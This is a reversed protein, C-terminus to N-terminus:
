AGITLPEDEWPQPESVWSFSHSYPTLSPLHEVFAPDTVTLEITWTDWPNERLKAILEDDSLADFDVPEADKTKEVKTDVIIGKAFKAYIEGDFTIGHEEAKAHLLTGLKSTANAFVDFSECEPAAILSLAEAEHGIKLERGPDFTYVTLSVTAGDVEGGVVAPYATRALASLTLPDALRKKSTDFRAAGIKGSGPYFGTSGRSGRSISVVMNDATLVGVGDGYHSYWVVEGVLSELVEDTIAADEYLDDTVYAKDSYKPFWVFEDEFAGLHDLFFIRPIAILGAHPDEAPAPAKKAAEFRIPDCADFTRNAEFATSDWAQGASLHSIWAPDSVEVRITGRMWGSPETWYAHEYDDQAEAPPENELGVVEVDRVFGRAYKRMWVADLATDLDVESALPADNGASEWLIMLAFGPTASIYMSDPHVVQVDLIATTDNEIKSVSVSYLTSM